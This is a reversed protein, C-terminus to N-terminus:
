RKPLEPYARDQGEVKATVGGCLTTGLGARPDTRRDGLRPDLGLELVTQEASPKRAGDFPESCSFIRLRSIQMRSRSVSLSSPFGM